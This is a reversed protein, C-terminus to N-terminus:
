YNKILVVDKDIEKVSVEYKSKDLKSFKKIIYEIEETKLDFYKNKFHDQEPRIINRLKIM